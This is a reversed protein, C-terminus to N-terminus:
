SGPPRGWASNPSLDSLVGGPWSPDQMRVALASALTLAKHVDSPIGALELFCIRPMQPDVRCILLTCLM